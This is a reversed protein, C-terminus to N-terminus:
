KNCNPNWKSVVACGAPRWRSRSLNFEQSEEELITPNEAPYYSDIVPPTNGAVVTLNWEHSTQASGDSVVVTVNYTGSSSSTFNYSTSNTIGVKTSNLYWQIIIDDGDPDQCIVNFLQSDGVSITPNSKPYYDIIVPARNVDIVTVGWYHTVTLKGDSVVLTVNHFGAEDYGVTYTWNQETSQEIGDLLWSYTLQDYDPDFSVQTFELTEGENVEPMAEEPSYLEIIPPNNFHTDKSKNYLEIIQQQPLRKMYIKVDDILGNFYSTQSDDRRGIELPSTSERINGSPAGGTVTVPVETGNIYIRSGVGAEYTCVIHYWIGTSLPTSYEVEYYGNNWVAFYLRNASGSSQFGIQYSYRKAIIRKGNQNASIRIWLEITLESWVGAGDLSEDDAIEIYSSAGDFYYSGNGSTTWIAEHITGNNGYGSYDVAVPSEDENFPMDLVPGADTVTLIWQHTAQALGDSVIVTVNYIGASAYDSSFVYTGETSILTGNLYWRVQLSDGDPDHYTINFAQTDGELITPDTTPSYSDIQPPRNVDLVTVNWQVTATLEGDSVVFTVNYFGASEYDTVFTWNQSTAQETGNLLWKYSLIDNDPDTSVQKFELNQGENIELELNSPSYYNIEPPRNVDIVTVNWEMSTSLQGDSVILTVNHYGAADYSPSYTWNQTTAQDVGDLLWRYSLPDGDPDYSTQNFILNEGENVEPTLDEPSYTEIVPPRNVHHVTLTWKRTAIALSPDTVVVTINYVGASGFSAEFVFTDGTAESSGNVFWEVTLSDNDPDHYTITFTQTENESITVFEPYPDWSDIIPAQNINIVTVNWQVSDSLQGDSVLLTVNHFGAAEYSPTYTWNQTHAIEASDLLWTYYLADNDSDYSSHTFELSEGENVTPTLNEPTYSTITPPTNEITVSPSQVLEGFVKGDKPKVTFYWIDGKQTFQSPVTLTDNLNVQLVGNRYWRIETGNESDGEADYYTYNAVL